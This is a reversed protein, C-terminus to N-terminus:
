KDYATGLLEVCYFVTTSVVALGQLTCLHLITLNDARPVACM